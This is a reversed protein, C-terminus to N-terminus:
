GCLYKQTQKIKLYSICLSKVVHNMSGSEWMVVPRLALQALLASEKLVEMTVGDASIRCVLTATMQRAVDLVAQQQYVNPSLHTGAGPPLPIAACQVIQKHYILQVCHANKIRANALASSCTPAWTAV